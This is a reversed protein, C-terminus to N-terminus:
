FAMISKGLYHTNTAASKHNHVGMKGLFHFNTAQGSLSTKDSTLINTCWNQGSLSASSKNSALFTFIEQKKSLKYEWKAM